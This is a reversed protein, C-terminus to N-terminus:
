KVHFCWPFDLGFFNQCWARWSYNASTKLWYSTPWKKSRNNYVLDRADKIVLSFAVVLFNCIKSSFIQKVLESKKSDANSEFCTNISKVQRIFSASCLGGTNVVRLNCFRLKSRIGPKKTVHQQGRVWRLQVEFVWHGHATFHTCGKIFCSTESTMNLDFPYHNPSVVLIQFYYAVAKLRVRSNWLEPMVFLGSSDELEGVSWFPANPRRNEDSNFGSSVKKVWFILGCPWM